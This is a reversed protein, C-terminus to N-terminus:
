QWTAPWFSAQYPSLDCDVSHSSFFGAALRMWGVALGTSNTSRASTLLLLAPSITTSRNPPEPEVSIPHSRRPRLARSISISGRYASQM